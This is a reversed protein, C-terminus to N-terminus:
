IHLGWYPARSWKLQQWGGDSTREDFSSGSKPLSGWDLTQGCVDLVMEGPIRHLIVSVADWGSRDISSKTKWIAIHLCVFPQKFNKQSHSSLSVSAGTQRQIVSCWGKVGDVVIIESGLITTLHRGGKMIEANQRAEKGFGSFIITMEQIVCCFRRPCAKPCHSERSELGGTSEGSQLFIPVVLM